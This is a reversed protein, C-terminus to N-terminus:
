RWVRYFARAWTAMIAASVAFRFLATTASRVRCTSPTRCAPLWTTPCSAPVSVASSNAWVWTAMIAASVEVADVAGAAYREVEVVALVYM